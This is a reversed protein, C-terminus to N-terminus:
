LWVPPEVCEATVFSQEASQAADPTCLRPLILPARLDLPLERADPERVGQAPVALKGADGWHLASLADETEDQLAVGWADSAGTESRFEDKLLPAPLAEAQGKVGPRVDAPLAPV